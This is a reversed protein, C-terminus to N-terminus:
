YLEVDLTLCIFFSATEELSYDLLITEPNKFSKVTVNFCKAIRDKEQFIGTSRRSSPLDLQLKTM